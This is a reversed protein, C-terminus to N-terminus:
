IAAALGGAIAGIVTGDDGAVAGGIAAGALAGVIGVKVRHWVDKEEAVPSAVDGTASQDDRRVIAVIMATLAVAASHDDDEEETSGDILEQIREIKTLDDDESGAAEVIQQLRNGEEESINQQVKLQTVFDQASQTLEEATQARLEEIVPVLATRLQGALRALELRSLGDGSADATADQAAAKASNTALVAIGSATAARLAVRRNLQNSL